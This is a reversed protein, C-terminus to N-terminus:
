LFRAISRQPSPSPAAGAKCPRAEENTSGACFALSKVVTVRRSVALLNMLPGRNAFNCETPFFKRGPASCHLTEQIKMKYRLKEIIPAIRVIVTHRPSKMAAPMSWWAVPPDWLRSRIQNFVLSRFQTGTQFLVGSRNISRSENSISIRYWRSHSVHGLRPYKTPDPLFPFPRQGRVYSLTAHVLAQIVNALFSSLEDLHHPEVIREM